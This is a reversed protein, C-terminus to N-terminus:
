TKAPMQWTARVVQQWRSARDCAQEIVHVLDRRELPKLLYDTAGCEIAASIYDWTSHATMFIVQTWSNRQKAYHLMELGNVSPMQIDSLLIDCSTSDISEQALRANNFARVVVRASFDALYREALRTIAADDDVLVLNLKRSLPM